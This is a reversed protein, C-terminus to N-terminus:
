GCYGREAFKGANQEPVRSQHSLTLRSDHLVKCAMLLASLRPRRRQM